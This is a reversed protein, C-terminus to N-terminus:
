LEKRNVSLLKLMQIRLTNKYRSTFLIDVKSKGLSDFEIGKKERKMMNKTMTSVHM